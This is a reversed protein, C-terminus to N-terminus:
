KELLGWDQLKYIMDGGIDKCLRDRVQAPLVDQDPYPRKAAALSANVMAVLEDLLAQADPMQPLLIVQKTAHFFIQPGDTSALVGLLQSSIERIEWVTGSGPLTFRRGILATRYRDILVQITVPESM